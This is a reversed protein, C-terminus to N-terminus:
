YAHTYPAQQVFELFQACNAPTNQTALVKALFFVAAGHNHYRNPIMGERIRETVEPLSVPVGAELLSLCKRFRWTSASTLLYPTCSAPDGGRDFLTSRLSPGMPYDYGRNRSTIRDMAQLVASCDTPIVLGNDLCVQTMYDRGALLLLAIIQEPHTSMGYGVDNLLFEMVDPGREFVVIRILSQVGQDNPDAAAFRARFAPTNAYTWLLKLVVVSSGSRLHTYFALEHDDPERPRHALLYALYSVHHEQYQLPEEVWPDLDPYTTLFWAAVKVRDSAEICEWFSEKVDVGFDVLAQLMKTDSRRAVEDIFCHEELFKAIRKKHILTVPRQLLWDVTEECSNSAATVIAQKPYWSSNMVDALGRGKQLYRLAAFDRGNQLAWRAFQPQWPFPFFDMTEINGHELATRLCGKLDALIPPSKLSMLFSWSKDTGKAALTRLYQNDEVEQTDEADTAKVLEDLLPSNAQDVVRTGRLRMAVTRVAIWNDCQEMAQIAEVFVATKQAETRWDDVVLDQLNQLWGGWRNALVKDEDTDKREDDDSEAVDDDRARKSM